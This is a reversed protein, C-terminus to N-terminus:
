VGALTIILDTIFGVFLGVFIGEDNSLGDMSKELDSKPIVWPGICLLTILMM